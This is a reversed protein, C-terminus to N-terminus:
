GEGWSLKRVGLFFCVGGVALLIGCSPLLEAFSYGRWIAGEMALIAWKVPSFNSVRELWEPM